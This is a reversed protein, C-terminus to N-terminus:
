QEKYIKIEKMAKVFAEFAEQFKRGIPHRDLQEAASRMDELHIKALDIMLPNAGAALFKEITRNAVEMRANYEDM